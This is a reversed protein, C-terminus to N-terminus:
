YVYLRYPTPQTHNSHNAFSHPKLTTRTKVCRGLQKIIHKNKSSVINLHSFKRDAQITSIKIIRHQPSPDAFDPLTSHHVIPVILRIGSHTNEPVYFTTLKDILVFPKPHESPIKQYIYDFNHRYYRNTTSIRTISHHTFFPHNNM